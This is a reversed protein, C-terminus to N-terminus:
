AGRIDVNGTIVSTAAKEINHEIPLEKSIPLVAMYGVISATALLLGIGIRRAKM